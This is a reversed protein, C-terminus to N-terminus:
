NAAITVTFTGAYNGALLAQTAQPVTVLIDMNSKWAGHSVTSSGDADNAAVTLTKLGGVGTGTGNAATYSAEVEYPLTNTFVASDYGGGTSNVMGAANTKAITIANPTNCGALNTDFNMTAPAVMTFAAAPGTNDSVYVGIQGFDFSLSGSNGTYFACDETVNGTLSFTAGDSSSVTGVNGVSITTGQWSSIPSNGNNANIGNALGLAGGNNSVTFGLFQTQGKSNIAISQASAASATMALVAVGALLTAIKKM